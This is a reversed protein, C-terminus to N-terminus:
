RDRDRSFTREAAARRIRRWAEHEAQEAPSAPASFQEEMAEDQRRAYWLMLADDFVKSRDLDAHERVFSDVAQLLEPAATVSVKVPRRPLSEPM